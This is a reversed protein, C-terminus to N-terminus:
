LVGERKYLKILKELHKMKEKSPPQVGIFLYRKGLYAYKAEGFRHFPLLEYRVNTLSKVLKLIATIDKETDNFGPIVPTRVIINLGPFNQNLEKLNAIIIDNTVGTFRKHKDPDICKIDYFVTDAHQCVMVMRNWDAYGSTEIATTIGRARAEKLLESAFGAQMLPEGGSLTIGGGSRSYLLSDEEVIQLVEEVTMRKGFLELANSPCVLTCEGCNTCRFRDIRVKKNDIREEIARAPCAQFCLHCEGTGICKNENYAIEPEHLQSEPNACWQCRLPCGKFFVITRIGPGDHVSFHQINFVLGTKEPTINHGTM